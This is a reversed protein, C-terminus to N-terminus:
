QNSENLSDELKKLETHLSNLKDYMQTCYKCFDSDIYSQTEWIEEKIFNIKNLIETKDM